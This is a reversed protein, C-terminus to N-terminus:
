KITFLLKQQTYLQWTSIFLGNEIEHIEIIKELCISSSVLPYTEFGYEDSM